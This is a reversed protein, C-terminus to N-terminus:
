AHSRGEILTGEHQNLAPRISGVPRIMVDYGMWGRSLSKLEKHHASKVYLYLATEGRENNGVGISLYWRYPRLKNDLLLAADEPTM